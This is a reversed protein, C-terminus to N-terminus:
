ALAALAAERTERYDIVALFGSMAMVSRCQPALAAIAFKGGKQRCAKAGILLARLGTSNVYSMGTCDLVMRVAGRELAASIRAMLVPASGCDLRGALSFVIAQGEHREAIEIAPGDEAPARGRGRANAALAAEATEHYELMSLLGSTELVARCEPRLAAVTLAGGEQLCTKAGILIARLGASSIYAIGSCDLVLGGDRKAIAAFEAELVPAGIGDLRGSPSVVVAFGERRTEIKMRRVGEGGTVATARPPM